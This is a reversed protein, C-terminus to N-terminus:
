PNNEVRSTVYVKDQYLVYEDNGSVLEWVIEYWVWGSLVDTNTPSLQFKAVGNAGDTTVDANVSLLEDTDSKDTKFVIKVVDASIDPNVGLHAVLVDFDKSVYNYFDSLPMEDGEITITPDYETITITPKSLEDQGYETITITPDYETLSEISPQDLTGTIFANGIESKAICTVPNPTIILNGLIVTPELTIKVNDIKGTFQGFRLISFRFAIDDAVDYFIHTDVESYNQVNAWFESNVSGSTYDTIDFQVKYTRGIELINQYIYSLENSDIILKGGSISIGNGSIQWISGNNFNPNKCVQMTAAATAPNPIVIQSSLIITPDVTKAICTSASPIVTINTSGIIITPDITKAICSLSNPVIILNGLIITPDVTKAITTAPNPILLVVNIITPDVTKAITTAPNPILLVVNIITPDITKAITTAPNPTVIQSGLIVTPNITKAITTVSSPTIVEGGGLVTPDITKAIVTLANPVITQSGLIVTPDITKAIATTADPIILLVNIVTPDITKAIVTLANPVITQSGLIITPDITKAITTAPNPIVIQSGLIVTPNITRAICSSADPVIPVIVTPDVTKAIATIANPIIIQSGFIVTPNITKAITSSMLSAITISGQIVVPDIVKAIVSVTIGILLINNIITPDVSKAICSVNAPTLILSAQIVTPDITKAICGSANPTLTLSGLVITPDVTKAITTAASPTVTIGADPPIFDITFTVINELTTAIVDEDEAYAQATAADRHYIGYAADSGIGTSGTYLLTYDTQVNDPAKDDEIGCICVLKRDAGTTTIARMIANLM